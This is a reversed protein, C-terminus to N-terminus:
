DTSGRGSSDREEILDISLDIINEANKVADDFDREDAEGFDGIENYIFASIMAKDSASRPSVEWFEKFLPLQCLREQWVKPDTEESLSEVEALFANISENKM